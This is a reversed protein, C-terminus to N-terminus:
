RGASQSKERAPTIQFKRRYHRPSIGVRQLFLRRFSRSDDYGVEAVIEEITRDSEELLEKAKEIRLTQRYERPSEGLATQFRRLLTRPSVGCSAALKAFSLPKEPDAALLEQAKQVVRDGHGQRKGRVMFPLQSDREPDILTFRAASLARARGLFKEALWLLLNLYSTAGGATILRGDEVVIRSM